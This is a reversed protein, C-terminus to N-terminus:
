SAEVLAPQGATGYLLARDSATIKSARDYEVYHLHEASNGPGFGYGLMQGLGDLFLGAALAGFARKLTQRTVRSGKASRVLRALRVFPILPSAFFFLARRGWNWERARAAGFAWGNYFNADCFTAMLSFNTHRTRAEATQFLRLGKSRMDWQILTEAEIMSELRSGYELLAQRKYSSNHGPLHSREGCLAPDIWEGYGLLLDAHSIATDPNANVMLPAVAVWPGRHAELLAAAWAPEPFSHDEAFVIIPARAQAFARPTPILERVFREPKSLRFQTFDRM